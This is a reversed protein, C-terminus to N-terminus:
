TTCPSYRDCDSVIVCVNGGTSSDLSAKELDAINCLSAKTEDLDAVVEAQFLIVM